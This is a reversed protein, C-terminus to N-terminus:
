EGVIDKIHTDQGKIYQALSFPPAADEPMGTIDPKDIEDEMIPMLERRCNPHPGEAWLNYEEKSIIQGDVAACEPCTVDDLIESVYYGYIDKSYRDFTLGRGGAIAPQITVSGTATILGNMTQNLANEVGALIEKAALGKSLGSLINYMASSRMEDAQLQAIISSQAIIRDKVEKTIEAAPKGLEKAANETGFQYLSEILKQLTDAYKGRYSVTLKYIQDLEGSDVITKIDQLMKSKQAELVLKSAQEFKKEYTDFKENIEALIKPDEWKSLDRRWKMEGEALKLKKGKESAQTVEKEPIPPLDMQTRLYAELDKDSKVLMAQALQSVSQALDKINVQGIKGCKLKPYKKVNFNYDVLQPIAYRNFIDEIYKAVAKESLLFFSSQDQSLAYSGAEKGLNMFSALVNDWISQTNRAIAEQATRVSQGAMGLIELKFGQPLVAYAKENARLNEGIEEALEKDKETFNEPLTIVPIGVGQREIGIADIKELNDKYWWPKYAARLISIGEFNDGEKQNTFILLKDIPIFITKYKGSAFYANQEIGSLGGDEETVWRYLTTQHRPALKRWYIKGDEQKFVKEFLSYGFPLYLLIQRLLDNWTISMRNFLADHVFEAAEVDQKEDSAREISWPAALIPLECSLLAAKVIPDGKRMKDYTKVAKSGKLDSNYEETIFGNFIQTGTTGIETLDPKKSESLKKIEYTGIKM